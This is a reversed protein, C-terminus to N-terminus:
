VCNRGLFKAKQRLTEITFETVNKHRLSISLCFHQKAHIRDRSYIDPDRCNQMRKLYIPLYGAILFLVIVQATFGAFPIHCGRVFTM